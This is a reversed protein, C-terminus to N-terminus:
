AAASWRGQKEEGALWELVSEYCLVYQRLSQVMSLRQLRFEEVTSEILDVSPDTASKGTGEQAPEKGVVDIDMPTRALARQRKLRDIVSDVTCFTGTRGCGASCHVLVPRLVGNADEGDDIDDDDVIDAGGESARVVADCQSVLGLLHAPHAPAGFDPWHDYQLQTIERLPAFPDAANRLTFHRVTVYPQPTNPATQHAYPIDIIPTSKPTSKPTTTSPTKPLTPRPASNSPRGHRHIKSPELSARHESLFTLTLHDYTGSTWYNHARVQGGEAEATLMVLVHVDQQWVVNWFDNFTAPIPGQTAIYRKQSISTTIHNANIYDCGGNPVGQLRVRSHEFPWINNYRNKAGKEIGAIQVNRGRPAQIYGNREGQPSATRPGPTGGSYRVNGSLAEQMRKQERKEIHLFKDAVRKGNDNMDAAARIWEPLHSEADSTLSNPHRIPMQGVGGLLDMNQRINGFFPNATSKTTPMPCRGIVPATPPSASTSRTTSKDVDLSVLNPFKKAFDAFGGRIIYAFGNYGETVFKKLTFICTNADKLVSSNADYAIIYKSNRWRGFKGRQEEDKLTEELKRVNFAPRRLLTTPCSLNLAGQIRSRSYQSSVRLDLLLIDENSAELLNVVYQPTVLVPEVEAVHNKGKWEANTEDFTPPLTEARGSSQIPKRGSSPLSLRTERDEPSAFKVEADSDSRRERGVFSAPSERRPRDTIAVTPSSLLRKPSRQHAGEIRETSSAQITPVTSSGPKIFTAAMATSSPAATRPSNAKDNANSGSGTSDLEARRTQNMTFNAMQPMTFVHRESQRRFLEFEANQDAPIIQPSAAAVSRVQSTPQDFNSCAHPAVTSSFSEKDPFVALGFYNPSPPGADQQKTTPTRTRPSLKPAYPTVGTM